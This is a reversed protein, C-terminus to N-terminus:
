FPDKYVQNCVPLLLIDQSIFVVSLKRWNLSSFGLSYLADSIQYFLASIKLEHKKMGTNRGGRGGGKKKKGIIKRKEKFSTLKLM